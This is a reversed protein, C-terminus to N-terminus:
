RTYIYQTESSLNADYHYGDEQYSLLDQPDTIKNKVIYRAFSGRAQKSYIQYSRLKGERYDKFVPSIIKIGANILAKKDLSKFIEDSALNILINGNDKLENICTSTLRPSWFQYLNGDGTGPIHMRFMLRYAKIGDIPTIWGFLTSIIRVKNQAYIFDERNFNEANLKKYVNGNYALVAQLSPINTNYFHQYIHYFKNAVSTNIQMMRALEGASFTQLGKILTESEKIFRPTTAHPCDPPIRAEMNMTRTPSLLTLM